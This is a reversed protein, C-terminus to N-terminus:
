FRVNVGAIPLIPLAGIARPGDGNGSVFYFLADRRALGNLLKLYPEIRTKRGALDPSWVSSVSVDLRLFPEDPSYLLPATETGGRSATNVALGMKQFQSDVEGVSALDSNNGMALPIESYPLGAGYTFGVVFHTRERIALELGSSLVHRGRFSARGAEVTATDSWVWALSYGIWGTLSTGSRRVWFDVGSANAEVGLDGPVDSFDKYFGEIGLHTNGGLDQDLAVTFHTARAVSLPISGRPTVDSGALLVEDPPRLFQHYRGAAMSLEVRDNVYWTAAVRPAIAIDGSTSFRDARAGGRVRVRPGVPGTAEIYAGLVSGWGEIDTAEGGTEEPNEGVRTATARYFQRDLSMGYRLRVTGRHVLDASLRERRAGADAVVPRTGAFPLSAAYDGRAATVEVGTRGFVGTFRASGTRNGWQIVSDASTGEGLYVSERNDFGTVSLTASSGLRVDGRVFSERYDYPLALGFSGSSAGSHVGRTAAIAGVRDGIGAEASARVTLLDAAADLHIGSGPAARTRLDMVYSLGGDYRAPAGGLYIDARSLLGPAFPEMLGGLPFPAYVPAGDLYVLKLDAPAGRVYLIGGPAGPDTGPVGRVADAIGLEALGPTTELARTGAIGLQTTGASSSDGPVGATGREAAVTVPALPVPHLPLAIDLVMEQGDAVVVEIEVITHGLHRARLLGRGPPIGVLRYGGESDALATRPQGAEPHIEVLAGPLPAGNGQDRVEGRVVTVAPEQAAAPATLAVLLVVLATRCACLIARGFPDKM